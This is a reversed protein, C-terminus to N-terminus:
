ADSDWKWNIAAFSCAIFHTTYGMVALISSAPCAAGSSFDSFITMLAASFGFLLGAIEAVCISMSLFKFIVAAILLALSVPAHPTRYSSSSILQAASLQIMASCSASLAQRIYESYMKSCSMFSVCGLLRPALRRKHPSYQRDRRQPVRIDIPSLYPTSESGEDPAEEGSSTVVCAHVHTYLMITVSVIYLMTINLSVTSGCFIHFLSLTMALFSLLRIPVRPFWIPAEVTFNGFPGLLFISASIAVPTTYLSLHALSRMSWLKHSRLALLLRRLFVGEPSLLLMLPVAVLLVLVHLSILVIIRASSAVPRRVADRSSVAWSFSFLLCAAYVPFFKVDFTLLLLSIILSMIFLSHCIFGCIMLLPFLPLIGMPSTFLVLLLSFIIATKYRDLEERASTTKRRFALRVVPLYIWRVLFFLPIALSILLPIALINTIIDARLFAQFIDSSFFLHPLTEPAGSHSSAPMHLLFLATGMTVVLVCM